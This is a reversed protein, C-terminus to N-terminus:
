DIYPPDEAMFQVIHKIHLQLTDFLPLPWTHDAHAHVLLPLETCALVVAQAGDKKLARLSSDLCQLGRTSFVGQTLEHTILEDIQRLQAEDLVRVCMHGSEYAPGLMPLARSARYTGLVGLTPCEADRWARDVAHGMHLIPIGVAQEIDPARIHGTNSCIAIAEAGGRELAIAADVYLQKHREPDSIADIVEQFNLSYIQLRASVNGGYLAHIGENIGAYYRATSHWSVGGILGVQKM